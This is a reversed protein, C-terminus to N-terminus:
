IFSKQSIINFLLTLCGSCCSCSSVEKPTQPVGASIQTNDVNYSFGSLKDLAQPIRYSAAPIKVLRCIGFLIIFLILFLVQKKPFSINYGSNAVQSSLISGM